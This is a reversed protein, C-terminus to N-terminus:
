YIYELFLCVCVYRYVCVSVHENIDTPARRPEVPGLGPCNHKKLDLMKTPSVFLPM